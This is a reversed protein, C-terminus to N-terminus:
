TRGVRIGPPQCDPPLQINTHLLGALNRKDRRHPCWCYRTRADIRCALEDVFDWFLHRTEPGIAYVFLAAVGPTDSKAFSSLADSLRDLDARHLRDDDEDGNETYTMPDMSFLWPTQLDNPVALRGGPAVQRRWSSHVPFVRSGSWARALEKYKGSNVEAIGGALKQTGVITRLLEASNPYRQRSAATRRYAMVVPSENLRPPQNALTLASELMDRAQKPVHEGLPEHPAMGHTLAIHLRGKPDTQTLRTAAEIEISHQLYNGDNGKAM